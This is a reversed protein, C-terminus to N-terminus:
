FNYSGRITFPIAVQESTKEGNTYERGGEVTLGTEFALATKPTMQWEVGATLAGKPVWQADHVDITQTSGAVDYFFEDGLPEGGLSSAAYADAYFLQTQTVDFSQANHHSAGASVGVFPTISRASYGKFIPDLYHRAGLELDIREQNHFDFQFSAIRQNPIRDSGVVRAGIPFNSEYFQTSFDRRLEGIVESGEITNGEAHSYGANAFITTRPTAIYELGGSIRKPTSHVDDFSLNQANTSEVRATFVDDSIFGEPPSGTTTAEDFVTPDYTGAPNFAPNKDHDLYLGSIAADIGVSLQSRWKPKKLRPKQPGKYAGHQGANAVHSGYGQSTYGGSFDPQQPFGGYPSQSALTVQSPNCGQPIPQAPSFIQCPNHRKRQHGKYHGGHPAGYQSKMAHKGGHGGGGWPM